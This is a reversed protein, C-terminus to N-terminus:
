GNTQPGYLNDVLRFTPAALPRGALFDAVLQRAAELDGEPIWYIPKGAREMKRYWIEQSRCFRRIKALLTARFSEYDLKGQLHLAAYRYELGFFDLREWSVGEAHLREVEQLLGAQLRADLREEIRRHIVLRHFYPGLLLPQLNLAPQSDREGLRTESIEVARIIRRRQTCDTRQYLEPDNHRLRELLAPTELEDLERRLQPDPNGGDLQYNELLANLYLATGGVIIPLHGRERIGRIARAADAVFRFLHYDDNPDLIDILHHPVREDGEGFEALDKGTGLDMGRYFQRSDASVIEGHFLRALEVGLRTKGTATPGLIV